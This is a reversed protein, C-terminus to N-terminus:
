RSTGRLGELLRVASRPERQLRPGIECAEALWAAISDEDALYDSTAQRVADPPSLGDRQWALCGEIAWRLIGPWEAQMKKGLDPDREEKPITVKFPILNFRRCIAEDVTRLSPKHNGVILLKFQPRFEFFDQRMYRAAVRDGGTLTKIRSEQWRRGEETEVATVLRAGHLMALETPHRDGALTFTEIPSTIHYDGLISSITDVLVSKGNGGTGYGFFMAHERTTGTLCYGAVRQCFAVLEDDADFIRHLFAQWQPCDGDPAVATIKSMHDEPRHPHMLGTHLDVVGDPTNLLWPNSDWQEVTAAIRRDSAALTQIGAVTKASAIRRAEVESRNGALEQCLAKALNRALHTTEPKWVTGDYHFWKGWVAVYRLTNVHKEVMLDSLDCDSLGHTNEDQTGSRAPNPSSRYDRAHARSAWAADAVSRADHGNVHAENWDKV